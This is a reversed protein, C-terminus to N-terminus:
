LKGKARLDKKVDEWSRKPDDKRAEAIIIDLLDEIEETYKELTKLEIQVAIKKNNSDTLFTVGKM